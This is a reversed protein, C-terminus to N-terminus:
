SVIDLATKMAEKFGEHFHTKEDCAKHLNENQQQLVRKDMELKDIKTHLSDSIEILDNIKDDQLKITDKMTM